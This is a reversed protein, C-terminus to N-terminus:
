NKEVYNHWKKSKSNELLLQLRANAGCETNKNKKTESLYVDNKM